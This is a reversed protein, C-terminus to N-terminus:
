VMVDGAAKWGSLSVTFRAGGLEPSADCTISGGHHNAIQQAIALGLGTGHAKSTFFPAFIQQRMDAPVGPGDDEVIIFTRGDDQHSSVTITGGTEGLAQIANHILIIILQIIQSRIVAVVHPAALAERVCFRHKLQHSLVTVASRVCSDPIAQESSQSTRSLTKLDNVVDKLHDAGQRTEDILEVLDTRMFSWRVADLREKWSTQAQGELGQGAFDIMEVLLQAYRRLTNLNSSIYGIPNNLEHAIGATLEGLNCMKDRHIATTTFGHVPASELDSGEPFRSSGDQPPPPQKSTSM